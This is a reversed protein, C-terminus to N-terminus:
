FSINIKRLVKKEKEQAGPDRQSAYHGTARPIHKPPPSQDPAGHGVIAKIPSRTRIQVTDKVTVNSREARREQSSRYSGTAKQAGSTTRRHPANSASDQPRVEGTSDLYETNEIRSSPVRPRAGTTATTRRSPGRTADSTLM